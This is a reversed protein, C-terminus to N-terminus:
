WIAHAYHKRITEDKTILGHEQTAAQAVIIRDFPDRTWRQILASNIIKEFSLDCINLEVAKHLFAAIRHPNTKLRGIECLYTLELLVIPSIKLSNENVAKKARESLRSTDGLYMWIVVHTDLYIM